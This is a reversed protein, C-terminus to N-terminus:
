PAAPVRGIRLRGVALAPIPEHGADLLDLLVRAAVDARVLLPPAPVCLQARDIAGRVRGDVVEKVAETVPAAFVAADRDGVAAALRAVAAGSGTVHGALWVVAGADPPLHRIAAALCRGASAHPPVTV